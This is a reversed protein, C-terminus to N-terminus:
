MCLCVVSKHSQSFDLATFAVHSTLSQVEVVVDQRGTIWIQLAVLEQEGIKRMALWRMPKLIQFILHLVSGTTVM